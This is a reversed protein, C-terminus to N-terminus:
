AAAGAAPAALREIAEVILPTAAQSLGRPRVFTEVFGRIQERDREVSQFSRGLQATHEELTDALRLLGLTKLHQFHLTGEQTGAFEDARISYVLRGVIGSEILASTNIGVVSHSHYMSDFYEARADLRIPNAGARPWIVADGFEDLNVAAWQAANQPHPRVLIGASRLVPSASARVARIWRRVFEVERPAIFPSSCLYLLLPREAPLGVRACFEERSTSPQMAFWHDYAQAGTVVVTDPAIGHLQAAEQRQQENWVIVRDPREHILGKTTLHDWSGVALVSPVGRRRAARVFDAQQSGFYLLPTVLLVDWPGAEFVREVEPRPAIRRELAGFLRQLLRIGARSRVLPLEAIRVVPAPAHDRGRARLKPAHDFEPALYRFYNLSDRVAAAFRHSATGKQFGAVEFTFASPYQATLREVIPTSDVADSTKRRDAVVHLHHGRAALLALTSEFNRLFGLHTIAFLIRM